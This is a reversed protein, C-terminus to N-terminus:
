QDFYWQLFEQAVESSSMELIAEALTHQGKAAAVASLACAAFGPSWERSSAQAILAPLRSLSEFYAAKLDANNADQARAVTVPALALLTISTGTLLWNRFRM